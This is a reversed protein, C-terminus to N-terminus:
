EGIMQIFEKLLPVHSMYTKGTVIKGDVCIEDNCYIAGYLECDNKIFDVGAIKKGEMMKTKLLLLPGHCVSCIPKDNEIFYKILNIVNKNYQLYEPSRGGPLYLAIYEEKNIEEFNKTLNFIHGLSEKLTQYNEDMEHIVTQITEGVKKGPCAVEVKYEHIEFVQHPVMLEYDEVFDGAIILIKKIDETM